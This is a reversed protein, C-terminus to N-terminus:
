KIKESLELLLSCIQMIFGKLFHNFFNKIFIIKREILKKNRSCIFDTPPWLSATTKGRKKRWELLRSPKKAAPFSHQRRVVSKAAATEQESCEEYAFPGRPFQDQRRLASVGGHVREKTCFNTIAPPPHTPARQLSKPAGALMQRLV